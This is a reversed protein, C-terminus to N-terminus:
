VKKGLNFTNAILKILESIEKEPNHQMEAVKQIRKGEIITCNYLASRIALHEYIKGTDKDIVVPSTTALYSKVRLAGLHKKIAEVKYLIDVGKKKKQNGTKCEIFCLSQDQMFAVDWENKPRSESPGKSCIELNLHVERIGLDDSHKYLLAWIFVELWGGTLFQAENAELRGTMRSDKFIISPFIKTLNDILGEDKLDIEDSDQLYLGNKRGKRRNSITTFSRLFKILDKDNHNEVLYVSTEFWELALMENEEVESESKGLEFGYGALFQGISIKHDLTETENAISLAKLRTAADEEDIPNVQKKGIFKLAKTQDNIPVYLMTCNSRDKFFEFAAISMPKTGGTINIFWEAEPYKSTVDQFVKLASPISNEDELSVIEHKDEEQLNSLEGIDLANMFNTAVNRRKM